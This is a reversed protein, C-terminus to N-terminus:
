RWHVISDSPCCVKLLQEVLGQVASLGVVHTAILTDQLFGHLVPSHELLTAWAQLAIFGDDALQQAAPHCSLPLLQCAPAPTGFSHLAHRWKEPPRCIGSGSSEYHQLFPLLCRAPAGEPLGSFSDQLQAIEALPLGSGSDKSCAFQALTKRLVHDPVVLRENQNSGGKIVSGPPADQPTAVHAKQSKYGLTIGDAAIKKGTGGIRGGDSSGGGSSSNSGSSGGGTSGACDCSLGMDFDLRQLQWLDLCAQQFIDRLKM